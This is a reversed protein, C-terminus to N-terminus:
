NYPVGTIFALNFADTFVSLLDLDRTIAKYVGFHRRPMSSSKNEKIRRWSDRCEDNSVTSSLNQIDDPRKLLELM